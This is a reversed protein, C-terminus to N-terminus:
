KEEQRLIGSTSTCATLEFGCTERAIRELDRLDGVTLKGYDIMMAM